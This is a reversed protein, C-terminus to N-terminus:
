AKRAAGNARQAYAERAEQETWGIHMLRAVFEEEHIIPPKDFRKIIFPWLKEQPLEGRVDTVRDHWAFPRGHENKFFDLERNIRFHYRSFEEVQFGRKRLRDAISM